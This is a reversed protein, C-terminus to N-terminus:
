IQAAAATAAGTPPGLGVPSARGSAVGEASPHRRALDVVVRAQDPGGLEGICRLATVETERDSLAVVALPLALPERLQRLSDLTARRVGPDPDSTLELPARDGVSRELTSM